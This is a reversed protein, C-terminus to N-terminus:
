KKLLRISLPFNVKQPPDHAVRIGCHRGLIGAVRAIAKGRSDKKGGIQYM